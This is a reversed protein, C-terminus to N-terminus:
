CITARGFICSKVWNPLNSFCVPTCPQEFCFEKMYPNYWLRKLYTRRNTPQNTPWNTQRNTLCKFHVFHSIRVDFNRKDFHERNRTHEQVSPLFTSEPRNAFHHSSNKNKGFNLHNKVLCLHFIEYIKPQSVSLTRFCTARVTILM